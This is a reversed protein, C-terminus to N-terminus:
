RARGFHKEAFNLYQTWDFDTINHKGTRIHYGISEGVSTDPPPMKDVTLGRKGFLKYVPEANKASLFEGKPDAWLDKSASAVYVPRPAMLAILMHQDLPLTSEKGSYQKYNECFWYPIVRSMFAHTEGFCRRTLAAGGCGSDNSIVIAFREDQAGAWLSTKGLRSHGFVAVRRHDIDDDTEFYDMVRSLGWAWASVSGWANGPHKADKAGASKFLGHVGDKFGDNYDPDIDGYYVTAVGFGRDVIM